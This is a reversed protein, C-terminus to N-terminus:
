SVYPRAKQAPAVLVPNDHQVPHACTGSSDNSQLLWFASSSRFANSSEFSATKFFDILQFVESQITFATPVNM